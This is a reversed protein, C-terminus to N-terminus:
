GAVWKKRQWSLAVGESDPSYNDAHVILNYFPDGGNLEFDSSDKMMDIAADLKKPTVPGLANLVDELKEYDFPRSVLKDLVQSIKQAEPDVAKEPRKYTGALISDVKSYDAAETTEQNEKLLPNNKRYKNYDFPQM